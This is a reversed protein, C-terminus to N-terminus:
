YGESIVMVVPGPVSLRVGSGHVAYHECVYLICIVYMCIVICM